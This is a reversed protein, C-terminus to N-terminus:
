MDFDRNKTGDYINSLTRIVDITKLFFLFVLNFYTLFDFLDPLECIMVWFLM